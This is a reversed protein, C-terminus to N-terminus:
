FLKENHRFASKKFIFFIITSILIQVAIVILYWYLDNELIFTMPIVVSIIAWFIISWWIWNGRRNDIQHIFAYVIIVLAIVILSTKKPEPLLRAPVICNIVFWFCSLFHLLRKLHIHPENQPTIYIDYKKKTTGKHKKV